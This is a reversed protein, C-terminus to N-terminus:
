QGSRTLRVKVSESKVYHKALKNLVVGGKWWSSSLLVQTCTMVCLVVYESPDSPLIAVEGADSGRAPTGVCAGAFGPSVV